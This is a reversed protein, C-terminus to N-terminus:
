FRTVRLPNAPDALNPFTAAQQDNVSDLGYVVCAAENYQAQSLVCGANAIAQLEADGAPARNFQFIHQMGGEIAFGNRVTGDVYQLAGWRTPDATGQLPQGIFRSVVQAGGQVAIKLFQGDFGFAVGTQVGQPLNARRDIGFFDNSGDAKFLRTALTQAYANVTLGEAGSGNVGQSLLSQFQAADDITDLRYAGGVMFGTTSTAPVGPASVFAQSYQLYGLELPGGPPPPPAQVNNAAEYLRDGWTVMSPQNIHVQDPLFATSDNRYLKYRDPYLAVLQEQYSAVSQSSVQPARPLLRLTDADCIGESEFRNLLGHMDAPFNANGGESEKVGFSIWRVKLTAGQTAAYAQFRLAQRKFDAFIEQQWKAITAGDTNTPHNVNQKLLYCKKGDTAHDASWRVAYQMEMGAGDYYGALGGPITVGDSRVYPYGNPPAPYGANGNLGCENVGIQLPEVQNTDDNWIPVLPFPQGFTAAPFDRIPALGSDNSQGAIIGVEWVSAGGATVQIAASYGSSSYAGTGLAMVRYSYTNGAQVNADTFSTTPGSYVQAYTGTNAGSVPARQLRYGSSNAVPNWSAGNSGAMTVVSLGTPAALQVPTTGAGQYPPYTESFTALYTAM